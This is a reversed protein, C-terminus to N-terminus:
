KVVPTIPVTYQSRVVKGNQMGPKWAPSNELMKIVRRNMEASFPNRLAKINTLRGDTEIVFTYFGKLGPTYSKDPVLNTAIYKSFKEIGGPFSASEEMVGFIENSNIVSTKPVTLALSDSKSLQQALLTQHLGTFGLALVAASLWKHWKPLPTSIRIRDAEFLGCLNKGNSKFVDQIEEESKGRM